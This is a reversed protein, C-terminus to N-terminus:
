NWESGEKKFEVVTDNWFLFKTWLSLMKLAQNKKETPVITDKNFYLDYVIKGAYLVLTKEKTTEDIIEKEFDYTIVTKELSDFVLSPWKKLNGLQFDSLVGTLQTVYKHEKVIDQKKEESM